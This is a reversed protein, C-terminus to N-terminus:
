EGNEDKISTNPCEKTMLQDMESNVDFLYLNVDINHYKGRYADVFLDASKLSEFRSIIVLKTLGDFGKEYLCIIPNDKM